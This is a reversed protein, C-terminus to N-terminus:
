GATAAITPGFLALRPRKSARRLRADRVLVPVGPEARAVETGDRFFVQVGDVDHRADALVGELLGDRSMVVLVRSM